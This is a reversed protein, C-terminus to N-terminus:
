QMTLTKTWLTIGEKMISTNTDFLIAANALNFENTPFWGVERHYKEMEDEVVERFQSLHGRPIKIDQAFVLAVDMDSYITQEGRAFSGFLIISIVDEDLLHLLIVDQLVKIEANMCM